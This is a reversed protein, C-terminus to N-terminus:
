SMLPMDRYLKMVEEKTAKKRLERFITQAGWTQRAFVAADNGTQFL